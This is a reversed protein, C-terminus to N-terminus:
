FCVERLFLRLRMWGQHSQPIQASSSKSKQTSAIISQCKRLHQSPLSHIKCPPPFYIKPFCFTSQPLILAGLLTWMNIGLVHAYTIKYLWFSYESIVINLIKLHLSPRSPDIILTVAAIFVLVLSWWPCKLFYYFYFLYVCAAFQVNYALKSPVPFHCSRLKYQWTIGKMHLIDNLNWFM